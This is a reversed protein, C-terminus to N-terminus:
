QKIPLAGQGWVTDFHGIILIQEEEEGTGYTFCYQNGVEDQPIIEVRGGVLSEFERQLVLGCHDTLEKNTSPSEAEVLRKLTEEMESQHDRLFALMDSL